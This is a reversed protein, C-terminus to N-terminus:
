SSGTAQPLIAAVEAWVADLQIREMCCRGSAERRCRVQQCPASPHDSRLARQGRGYPRAHDPDTPGFLSVGPVDFAAALHSVGTDLGVAFDAGAALDALEDGSLRHALASALPIGEAIREARAREEPSGWTLLVRNGTAAIREVLRHWREDPWLKTPWGATTIVLGYREANRTSPRPLGASGIGPPLPYDLAAAFFRRLQEVIHPHGGLPLHRAYFRVASPERASATDFGVIPAGALRALLASKMLGQADIVLDYRRASLAARLARRHRLLGPWRSPPWRLRRLSVEHVESVAPHRGVLTAYGEEVLWDVEIDPRAAHLDTLAPLTHIVDGFSSLKVILIRGPAGPRSPLAGSSPATAPTM